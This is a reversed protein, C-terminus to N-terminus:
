NLSHPPALLFPAIAADFTRGNPCVMEYSGRMEGRPTTLMANSTYEFQDGPDLLPQEGIVGPGRVEEVKGTSDTILWHRSRLQAVQAGENIIRVTYSFVYRKAAPLSREPLYRSIVVIRIGHTVATSVQMTAQSIQVRASM